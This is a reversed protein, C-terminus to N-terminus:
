VELDVWMCHLDSQQSGLHFDTETSETVSWITKLTVIMWDSKESIISSSPQLSYCIPWHLTAGRWIQFPGSELFVTYWLHSGFRAHQIALWLDIPCDEEFLTWDSLVSASHSIQGQQNWALRLFTQKVIILPKFGSTRNPTSMFSGKHSSDTSNASHASPM